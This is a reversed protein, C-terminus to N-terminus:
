RQATSAKTRDNYVRVGPAIFHEKLSRAQQGLVKDNAMLLGVPVTPSTNFIKKVKEDNLGGMERVITVASALVLSKLDICEARWNDRNSVGAVKPIEVQVIPAVISAARAQLAEARQAGRQETTEAKTELKQAARAAEDAAKAAAAAAAADGARKAEEAERRAKDAAQRQAEAERRAAAAKEDAVRQAERAEAERKLREQRAIEDLRQQEKRALEKQEDDWKQLKKKLIEEASKLFELPARFFADVRRCGELSPAKLEERQADVAKFQGKISQLDTAAVRYDDASTIVMDEVRKLAAAARSKASDDPQPTRVEVLLEHTDANPRM